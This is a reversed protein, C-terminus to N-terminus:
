KDRWKFGGTQSNYYGIDYEIAKRQLMDNCIGGGVMCGGIGSFVCMIIIFIADETHEKM